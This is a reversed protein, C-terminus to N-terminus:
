LLAAYDMCTLQQQQLWLLPRTRSRGGVAAVVVVVASACSEPQSQHSTLLTSLMEPGCDYRYICYQMGALMHNLYFLRLKSNGKWLWSCYGYVTGFAFSSKMTLLSIYFANMRDYSVKWEMPHISKRKMILLSIMWRKQPLTTYLQFPNIKRENAV